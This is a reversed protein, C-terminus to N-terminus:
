KRNRKWWVLIGSVFIFAPFGVVISFFILNMQKASLSTYVNIIDKPPIAILEKREALWNLSNLALIGNGVSGIQYNSIFDSDGIVVIKSHSSPNEAVAAATVPGKSDSAEEFVFNENMINTEGWGDESTYALRTPIYGLENNGAEIEM